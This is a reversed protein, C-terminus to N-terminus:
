ASLLDPSSSKEARDGAAPYDRWLQMRRARSVRVWIAARKSEVQRGIDELWIGLEAADSRVMGYHSHQAEILAGIGGTTTHTLIFEALKRTIAFDLRAAMLLARAVCVFPYPNPAYNVDLVRKAISEFFGKEFCARKRGSPEMLEIACSDIILFTIGPFDEIQPVIKQSGFGWTVAL